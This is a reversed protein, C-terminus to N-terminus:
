SDVFMSQGNVCGTLGTSRNGHFRLRSQMCIREPLIPRYLVQMAEGDLIELSQRERVEVRTWDLAKGDFRRPANENLGTLNM